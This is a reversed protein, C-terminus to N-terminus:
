LRLSALSRLAWVPSWRHRCQIWCPTIPPPQVSRAKIGIGIWSSSGQM